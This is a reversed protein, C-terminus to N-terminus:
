SSAELIKNTLFHTEVVNTNCAKSFRLAQSGLDISNKADKLPM